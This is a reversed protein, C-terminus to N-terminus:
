KRASREGVPFHGRDNWWAIFDRMQSKHALNEFGTGYSPRMNRKM